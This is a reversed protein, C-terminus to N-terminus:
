SFFAVWKMNKSLCLLNSLIEHVSEDKRTRNNSHFQVHTM